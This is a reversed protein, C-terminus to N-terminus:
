LDLWHTSFRSIYTYKSNAGWGRENKKRKICTSNARM